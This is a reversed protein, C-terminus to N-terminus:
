HHHAKSSVMSHGYLYIPVIGDGWLGDLRMREQQIAFEIDQLQRGLTTDGHAPGSQGFGRQDFGYVEINREAFQPWVHNYREIHEAFGHIFIILARPSATPTSTPVPIWRKTYFIVEDRWPIKKNETRCGHKRAASGDM